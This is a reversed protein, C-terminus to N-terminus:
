SDIFILPFWCSPLWCKFSLIADVKSMPPQMMWDDNINKFSSGGKKTTEWQWQAKALWCSNLPYWFDDLHKKKKSFNSTKISRGESHKQSEKVTEKAGFCILTKEQPPAGAGPNREPSLLSWWNQPGKAKCDHSRLTSSNTEPLYNVQNKCQMPPPYVKSLYFLQVVWRSIVVDSTSLSKPMLLLFGLRLNLQSSYIFLHLSEGFDLSYLRTCHDEHDIQDVVSLTPHPSLNQHSWGLHLTVGVDDSKGLSGMNVDMPKACKPDKYIKRIEVQCHLIRM